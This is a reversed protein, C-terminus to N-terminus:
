RGPEYREVDEFRDCDRDFSAVAANDACARAALLAHAFEVPRAGYRKLADLLIGRDATKIGPSRVLAALSVAIEERGRGFYLDLAYTLESIVVPDLLLTVKGDRAAWMLAEAAPWQKPDDPTLFRVVVNTDLHYTKM